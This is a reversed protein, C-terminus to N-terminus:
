KCLNRRYRGMYTSDLFRSYLTIPVRNRGWYLFNNQIKEYLVENSNQNKIFYTEMKTDNLIQLCLPIDGEIKLIYFM